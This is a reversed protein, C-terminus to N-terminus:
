YRALDANGGSSSGLLLNYTTGTAVSLAIILLVDLGCVVAGITAYSIPWRRRSFGNKNGRVGCSVDHAAISNDPSTM